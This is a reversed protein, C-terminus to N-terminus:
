RSARMRTTLFLDLDVPSAAIPISDERRVGGGALIAPEVHSLMEVAHRYRDSGLLDGSGFLDVTQYFAPWGDAHLLFSRYRPDLPEGIHAEVAGLAAEGAGVAALGYQWLGRTDLEALKQKVLVVEVIRQKWDTQGIERSM